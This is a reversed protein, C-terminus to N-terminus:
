FVGGGWAGKSVNRGVGMHYVVTHLVRQAAILQMDLKSSVYFRERCAGNLIGM